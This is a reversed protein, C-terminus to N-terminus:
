ADSWMGSGEALMIRPAVHGVRRSRSSVMGEALGQPRRPSGVVCKGPTRNVKPPPPPIGLMIRVEHLVYETRVLQGKNM